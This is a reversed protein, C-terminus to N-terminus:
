FKFNRGKERNKLIMKGEQILIRIWGVLILATGHEDPDPDSVVAFLLV